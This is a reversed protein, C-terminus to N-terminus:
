EIDEVEGSQLAEIHKLIETILLAPLDSFLDDEFKRARAKLKSQELKEKTEEIEKKMDLIQQEKKQLRTVIVQEQSLSEQLRREAEQLKQTEKARLGSEHSVLSDQERQLEKVKAVKKILEKEANM